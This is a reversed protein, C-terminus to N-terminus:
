DRLKTALPNSPKLKSPWLKPHFVWPAPSRTMVATILNCRCPPGKQAVPLWGNSSPLLWKLGNQGWDPLKPGFCGVMPTPRRCGYSLPNNYTLM